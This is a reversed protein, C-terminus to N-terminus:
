LCVGPGRWERLAGSNWGGPEPEPEPEPEPPPSPPPTPEKPPPPLPPPPPILMAAEIMQRVMDRLDGGRPTAVPQLAPLLAPCCPLLSHSPLRAAQSAPPRLLRPSSLLGASCLWGALWCLCAACAPGPRAGVKDAGDAGYAGFPHNADLGQKGLGEFLNGLVADRVSEADSVPPQLLLPPHCNHHLPAPRPLCLHTLLM